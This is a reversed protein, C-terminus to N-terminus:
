RVRPFDRHTLYTECAGTLAVAGNPGCRAHTTAGDSFGAIWSAGYATILTQQGSYITDPVTASSGYVDHFYNFLYIPHNRKTKQDTTYRLLAAVQRENAMSSGITLTGVTTYTKESVPVESGADYGQALTITTRSSYITKEATVIADFFTHWEADTTPSGNTFHYRNTFTHAVGRWPLSKTIKVSPQAAM